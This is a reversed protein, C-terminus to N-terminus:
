SKQNKDQFLEEVNNSYGVAVIFDHFYNSVMGHCNSILLNLFENFIHYLGRKINSARSFWLYNGYM